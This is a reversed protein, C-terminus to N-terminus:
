SPIGLLGDITSVLDQPTFPKTLYKDVQQLKGVLKNASDSYATTVIVRVSGEGYKGYLFKLVDWGSMYPLNLDLLMIDPLTTELFQVAEEGNAAHVVEFGARQLIIMNLKAYEMTDEVMLIRYQSRPNTM